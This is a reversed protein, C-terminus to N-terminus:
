AGESQHPDQDDSFEERYILSEFQLAHRGAIDVGLALSNRGYLSCASVLSQQFYINVRTDRGVLTPM